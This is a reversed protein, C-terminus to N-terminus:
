KNADVEGKVYNAALSFDIGNVNVTENKSVRDLSINSFVKSSRFNSSLVALAGENQATATLTVTEPGIVLDSITVGEPINKIIEGLTKDASFLKIEQSVAAVRGSFSRFKNEFESSAEIISKKKRILENYDAIDSDLKFRSIFALVVILETLVVVVKGTSLAWRLFRGGPREQLDDSTVFNINPTDLNKPM